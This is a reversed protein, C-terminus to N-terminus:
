AAAAQRHARIPEGSTTESAPEPQPEPERPTRVWASPSAGSGTLIGMRRVLFRPLTAFARWVPAPARVLALGGLVYLAQAIVGTAAVRSTRRARTLGAGVAAGLNIALLLSQPPQVPELAADLEVLSRRRASRSLLKPSLRAALGLRGSEWRREQAEIGAQAAPSPSDVEAEPAFIVRAGDLVWRMHQERDEAFSFAQWSSRVLLCRSFAMGTGLLGSSLGLQDRGLPRVVNFLAFGAWRLATAASREPNSVLYPVQVADAGAEIRAAVASLLNGSPRCDADIVCVARIADDELVREFAWALAHGKGRQVPNSREWVEAGAARAAAATRDSCNDAIVIIRRHGPDYDCAQVSRVTTVIQAEEDHAPIVVALGLRGRPARAPRQPHRAAAALLLLLHASGLGGAAAGCAAAAKVAGNLRGTVPLECAGAASSM